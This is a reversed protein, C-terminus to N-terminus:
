IIISIKKHLTRLSTNKILPSIELEEERDINVKPLFALDSTPKVWTKRLEDGNSNIVFLPIFQNTKLNTISPCVRIDRFRDKTLRMTKGGIYLRTKRGHLKYSRLLDNEFEDLGLLDKDTFSTLTYDGYFLTLTNQTDSLFYNHYGEERSEISEYLDYKVLARQLLHTLVREASMNDNNFYEQLENPTYLTKEQAFSIGVRPFVQKLSFYNTLLIKTFEFILNYYPLSEAFAQEKIKTKSIIRGLFLLRVREFAYGSNIQELIAKEIISQFKNLKDNLTHDKYGTYLDLDYIPIDLILDGTEEKTIFGTEPLKINYDQIRKELEKLFQTRKLTMREKISLVENEASTSSTLKKEKKLLTITNEFLNHSVTGLNEHNLYEIVTSLDYGEKYKLTTLIDSICNELKKVQSKNKLDISKIETHTKIYSALSISFTRTSSM